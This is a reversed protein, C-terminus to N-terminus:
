KEGMEYKNGNLDFKNAINLYPHLINKVPQNRPSRIGPSNKNLSFSSQNLSKRLPQKDISHRHFKRGRM